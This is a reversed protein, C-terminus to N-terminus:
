LVARHIQLKVTLLSSLFNHLAKREWLFFIAMCQLNNLITTFSLLCTYFVLFLSSFSFFFPFFHSPSLSFSLPPFLLLLLPFFFFFNSHQIETTTKIWNHQLLQVWCDSSYKPCKPTQKVKIYM